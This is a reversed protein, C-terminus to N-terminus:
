TSPTTMIPHMGRPAGMVGPAFVDAGRLVACGCLVDVIVHTDHSVFHSGTRDVNAICLVDDM